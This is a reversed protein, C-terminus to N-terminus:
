ANCAPIETGPRFPENKSQQDFWLELMLMVFLRNSFDDQGELHLKIQGQVQEPQFVGRRRIRDPSLMDLMYEKLESKWWDRLPVNFGHKPRYLIDHPLLPEMAKKVLLKGEKQHLKLRGPVQFAWEVLRHDLFPVRAELGFAMTMRDVKTLMESVLTTKIDTYLKRQMWEANRYTDFHERTVQLWYDGDTRRAIDPTVLDMITEHPLVTFWNLYGAPTPTAWIPPSPPPLDQIKALLQRALLKARSAPESPPWPPPGHRWPYGAFVEDAGDGSLVVKVNRRAQESLYFVGAASSVAFPEDCHWAMKPLVDIMHPQFDIERHKTGCHAAVTRAPDGEDFDPRGPFVVSFTQM